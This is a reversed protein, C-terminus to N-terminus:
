HGFKQIAAVNEPFLQAFDIFYKELLQGLEGSSEKESTILKRHNEQALQLYILIGRSFEKINLEERLNQSDEIATPAGYDTFIELINAKLEHAIEIKKKTVAINLVINTDYFKTFAQQKVHKLLKDSKPKKIKKNIKDISTQSDTMYTDIACFLEQLLQDFNPSKSKASSFMVVGM